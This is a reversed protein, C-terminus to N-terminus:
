ALKEVKVVLNDVCVCGSSALGLMLAGGNTRVTASGTAKGGGGQSSYVTAPYDGFGAEFADGCYTFSYSVRYMGADVVLTNDTLTAAGSCVLQGLNLPQSGCVRQSCRNVTVTTAQTPAPPM